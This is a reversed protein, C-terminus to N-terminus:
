QSQTRQTLVLADLDPVAIRRTLEEVGPTERRPLHAVQPGDVAELPSVEARRVGVHVRVVPVHRPAPAFMGTRLM